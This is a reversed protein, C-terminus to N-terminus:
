VEGQVETAGEGEGRGGGKGEDEDEDDDEESSEEADFFEDKFWPWYCRGNRFEPPIIAMNPPQIIFPALNGLAQMMLIFHRHYTENSHQFRDRANRTCSSQGCIFLFMPLSEELSLRMNSWDVVNRHVIEKVLEMFTTVEMLLQNRISILNGSLLFKIYQDDTYPCNCQPQRTPIDSTLQCVMHYDMVDDDDDSYPDYMNNPQGGNPRSSSM